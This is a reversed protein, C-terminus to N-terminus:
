RANISFGLVTELRWKQYGMTGVHKIPREYIFSLKFSKSGIYLMIACHFLDVVCTNKLDSKLGDWEFAINRTQKKTEIVTKIYLRVVGIQTMNTEKIKVSKAFFYKVVFNVNWALTENKNNTKYAVDLVASKTIM